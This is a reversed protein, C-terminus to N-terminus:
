RPEQQHPESPQPTRLKAKVVFAAAIIVFGVVFLLVATAGRNSAMCVSAFALCAMAAIAAVLYILKAKRNM